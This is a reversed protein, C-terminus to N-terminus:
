TLWPVEYPAVERGPQLYVQHMQGSYRHYKLSFSGRSIPYFFLHEIYPNITSSM